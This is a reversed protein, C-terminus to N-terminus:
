CAPRVLSPVGCSADPSPLCNDEGLRRGCYRGPCATWLDRIVDVTAPSLDCLDTATGNQATVAVAVAAPATAVSAKAHAAAAVLALAILVLALAAPRQRAAAMPAASGARGSRRLASRLGIVDCSLIVCIGRL